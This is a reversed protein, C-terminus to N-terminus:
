HISEEISNQLLFILLLAFHIIFNRKVEIVREELFGNMSNGMSIKILKWKGQQYEAAFLSNIASSKKEGLEDASKGVLNQVPKHFYGRIQM